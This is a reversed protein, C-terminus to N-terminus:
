VHMVPRKYSRRLYTLVDLSLPLPSSGGYVVVRDDVVGITVM